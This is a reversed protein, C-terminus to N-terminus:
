PIGHKGDQLAYNSIRNKTWICSNEDITHTGNDFTILMQPGSREIGLTCTYLILGLWNQQGFLIAPIVSNIVFIVIISLVAILIIKDRAKM